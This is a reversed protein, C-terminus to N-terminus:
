RPMELSATVGGHPNNELSLRGAEGFLTALRARVNSLGAGSGEDGILGVGSDNVELHLKANADHARIVIEGGGIKPEIGHRVANEVLPQLLM